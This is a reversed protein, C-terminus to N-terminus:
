DSAGFQIGTARTREAKIRCHAVDNRVEHQHDILNPLACVLEVNKMKM